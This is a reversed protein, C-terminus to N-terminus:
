QQPTKGAERAKRDSEQKLFIQLAKNYEKTLDPNHSVQIVTRGNAAFPLYTPRVLPSSQIEEWTESWLRNTLMEPSREYEPLLDNLRKERSQLVNIYYALDTRAASMITSVQGTIRSSSLEADIKALIGEAQSDLASADKLLEKAKAPDASKAQSKKMGAQDHLLAYQGILNDAQGIKVVDDQWPVGVLVRYDEGAANSLIGRAKGIAENKKAEFDKRAQNAQAYANQAQVPWEMESSLSRIVVVGPIKQPGGLLADLEKQASIRVEEEFDSKYTKLSQATRAAATRIAARCVAMRVVNELAKDKEREALVDSGNVRAIQSLYTVPDSVRYYCKISSHILNRDGTFLAGDLVPRLGKSSTTRDSMAKGADAGTEFVWFDKMDLQQESTNVIEINGIPFPWTYTLGGGQPSTGTVRGFVKKVGVKNSDVFSIGSAVWAILMLVMIVALIRFSLRLADALSRSAVDMKSTDLPESSGVNGHACCGHEDHEHDHEHDHDM